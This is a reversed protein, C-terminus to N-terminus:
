RLGGFVRQLIQSGTAVPDQRIKREEEGITLYIGDLARDTVYQQLNAEQPRLLGLRAARGAVDNYRQALEVRETARTVIPLFRTSLPTRTRESFFNTAATDGGTLIRRADDITMTRIAQLLLNRAEPTAQEAARNMATELADVRGGQGMRRLLEALDQLAGPLPIRVKPNGLFGDPRGLLRVASEAGRELAARLGASADAASLGQAQPKSLPVLSLLLVIQRRSLIPNPM